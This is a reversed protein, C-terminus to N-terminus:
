GEPRNKKNGIFAIICLNLFALYCPLKEQSIGRGVPCTHPGLWSRLLSWFGQLANRSCWRLAIGSQVSREVSQVSTVALHTVSQRKWQETNIRVIATFENIVEEVM